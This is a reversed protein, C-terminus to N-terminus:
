KRLDRFFNQLLYRCEEERIGGICEVSSGLDPNILINIASGAAGDRPAPVGYVVTGIRSQIIAGACMPCPEKTVVLTCDNLRWDGLASEAQTIAIMEAHATADKLLEIQNHARAIIRNEQVIVCGIPIDESEAAKEAERIASGMLSDYDTINIRDIIDNLINDKLFPGGVVM